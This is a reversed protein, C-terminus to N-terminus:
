QLNKERGGIAITTPYDPLRDRSRSWKREVAAVPCRDLLDSHAVPSVIFFRVHYQPNTRVPPASSVQTALTGGDSHVDRADRADVVNGRCPLRVFPLVKMLPVIM